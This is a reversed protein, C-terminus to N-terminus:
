VLFSGAPTQRIQDPSSPSSDRHLPPSTSSLDRFQGCDNLFDSRRYLVRFAEKRYLFLVASEVPVDPLEHITLRQPVRPLRVRPNRGVSGLSVAHAPIQQMSAELKNSWGDAICKM